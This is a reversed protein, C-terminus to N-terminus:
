CQQRANYPYWCGVGIVKFSRGQVGFIPPKLIKERNWAAVRVDLTFQASIVPSQGLCGAYSIKLM